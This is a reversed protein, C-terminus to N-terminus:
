DAGIDEIFRVSPHIQDYRVALHEAVIRRVKLAVERSTGPACRAVFEDDSIPPFKEDFDVGNPFAAHRLVVAYVLFLAAAGALCLVVVDM